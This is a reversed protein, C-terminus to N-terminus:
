LLDLKIINANDPEHQELWDEVALEWDFKDSLSFTQQNIATTIEINILEGALLGSFQWISEDAKYVLDDNFLIAQNM